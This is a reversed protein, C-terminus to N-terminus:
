MCTDESDSVPDEDVEVTVADEVEVTVTGDDVSDVLDRVHAMFAVRESKTLSRVPPM